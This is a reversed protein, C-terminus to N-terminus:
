SVISVGRTSCFSVGVTDEGSRMLLWLSGVKLVFKGSFGDCLVGGMSSLTRGMSRPSRPRSVGSGVVVMADWAEWVSGALLGSEHVTELM